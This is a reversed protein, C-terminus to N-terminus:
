MRHIRATRHMEPWVWILFAGFLAFLILGGISRRPHRQVFDQVDGRARSPATRLEHASCPFGGNHPTSIATVIRRDASRRAAGGPRRRRRRAAFPGDAHRYGSRVADARLRRGAGPQGAGGMSRASNLVKVPDMSHAEIAVDAALVSLDPEIVFLTGPKEGRPVADIFIAVDCGDLLAYVLDLGRIGFDRIRVNDPWPRQQQLLRQTVHVGFADDGLFINGIGAVLIRPPSPSLPSQQPANM